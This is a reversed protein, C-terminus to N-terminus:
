KMRACARKFEADIPKFIMAAGRAIISNELTDKGKTVIVKGKYRTKGLGPQEKHFADRKKQDGGVHLFYGQIRKSWSESSIIAKSGSWVWRIGRYFKGTDILAIDTGVGPRGTRTAHRDITSQKLPIGFEDGFGFVGDRVNAKIKKIALDSLKSIISKINLIM